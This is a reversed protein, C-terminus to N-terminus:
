RRHYRGVTYSGRVKPRGSYGVNSLIVAQEGMRLGAGNDEVARKNEEVAVCSARNDALHPLKTRASEGAVELTGVGEEAAAAETSCRDGRGRRVRRRFPLSLPHVAARLITPSDRGRPIRVASCRSVGGDTGSLSRTM